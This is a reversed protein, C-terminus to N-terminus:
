KQKWYFSIIYYLQADSNGEDASLKFYKAAKTYNIPFNKDGNFYSLAIEYKTMSDTNADPLM